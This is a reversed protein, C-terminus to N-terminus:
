ISVIKQFKHYVGVKIGFRFILVFRLAIRYYQINRAGEHQRVNKDKM